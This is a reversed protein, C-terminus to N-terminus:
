VFTHGSRVEIGTQELSAAQMLRMLRHQCEREAAHGAITGYRVASRRIFQLRSISFDVQRILDVCVCRSGSELFPRHKGIILASHRAAQRLRNRRLFSNTASYSSPLALSVTLSLSRLGM